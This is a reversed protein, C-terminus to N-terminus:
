DERTRDGMLAAVGLCGVVILPFIVYWFRQVLMAGRIALVWVGPLTMEQEAWVVAKRMIAQSGMVLSGILMLSVVIAVVYRM